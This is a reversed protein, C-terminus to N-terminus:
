FSYIKKIMKLKMRICLTERSNKEWKKRMKDDIGKGELEHTRESLAQICKTSGSHAPHMTM